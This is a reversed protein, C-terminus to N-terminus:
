KTAKLLAAVFLMVYSKGYGAPMEWLVRKKDQHFAKAIVLTAAEQSKTPVIECQKFLTKINEMMLEHERTSLAYTSVLKKTEKSSYNYQLMRKKAADNSEVDQFM